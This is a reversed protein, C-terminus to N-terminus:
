APKGFITREAVGGPVALIYHLDPSIRSSRISNNFDLALASPPHEAIFLIYMQVNHEEASAKAVRVIYRVAIKDTKPTTPSSACYGGHTMISSYGGVSVFSPM